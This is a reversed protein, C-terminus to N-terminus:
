LQSDSESFFYKIIKDLLYKKQYDFKIKERFELVIQSFIQPYEHDAVNDMARNSPTPTDGDPQDINSNQTELDLQYMLEIIKTFFRCEDSESFENSLSKYKEMTNYAEYRQGQSLICLLSNLFFTKVLHKRLNSCLCGIALNEYITIGKSMKNIKTCLEAIKQMLSINYIGECKYCEIAYELMTIAMEYEKHKEYIKSIELYYKACLCQKNCNKILDVAILIYQIIHNKSNPIMEYCYSCNIYAQSAEQIKNIELFCCAIKKFCEAAQLWKKEIKYLESANEFKEIAEMYRDDKSIFLSSMIGFSDSLKIGQGFYYDGNQQEVFENYAYESRIQDTRQIPQSMRFINKFINYFTM